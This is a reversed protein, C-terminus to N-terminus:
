DHHKAELKKIGRNAFWQLGCYVTSMVFVMLVPVTFQNVDGSLTIGIFLLLIAGHLLALYGWGNIM